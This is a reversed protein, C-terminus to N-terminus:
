RKHAFFPIRWFRAWPSPFTTIAPPVLAAVGDLPYCCRAANQRWAADKASDSFQSYPSPLTIGLIAMRRQKAITRCRAHCHAVSRRWATDKAVERYQVRGFPLALCLTSERNCASPTMM